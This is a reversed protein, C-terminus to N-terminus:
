GVLARCCSSMSNLEFYTFLQMYQNKLLLQSTGLFIFVFYFYFGKRKLDPLLVLVITLSLDSPICRQKEMNAIEHHGTDIGATSVSLHFYIM